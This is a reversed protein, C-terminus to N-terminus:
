VATISVACYFTCVKLQQNVFLGSVSGEFSFNFLLLLLFSLCHSDLSLHTQPLILSPFYYLSHM